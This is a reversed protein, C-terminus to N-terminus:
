RAAIVTVYPSLRIVRGHQLEVMDDLAGAPQQLDIVGTVLRNAVKDDAFVIMGGAYRGIEEVVERVTADHVVLRRRRWSDVDEPSVTGQAVHGDRAIRLRQGATLAVALEHGDGVVRVTGSQVAVSVGVDSAGVNFATGTVTVAVGSADVVFPREAASVVEFFAQGSLLRVDRRGTSYNVAIASRADLTVRSGDELAIERVEATDTLHDALLRVQLVPFVLFAVCAVLATAAFTAVRGRWSWGRALAASQRAQMLRAASVKEGTRWIPAVADYARRHRESQELWAHFEAQLSRDHPAEQLRMLWEVAQGRLSLGKDPAPNLGPEEHQFSRLM